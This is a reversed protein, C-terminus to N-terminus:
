LLNFFLLLLIYLSFFKCSVHAHMFDSFFIQLFSGLITTIREQGHQLLFIRLKISLLILVVLACILAEL